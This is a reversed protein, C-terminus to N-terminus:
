QQLRHFIWAILMLFVGAVMLIVDLTFVVLGVSCEISKCDIPLPISPFNSAAGFLFLGFGLIFIILRISV